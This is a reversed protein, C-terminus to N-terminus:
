EFPLSSPCRQQDRKGSAAEAFFHVLRTIVYYATIFIKKKKKKSCSCTLIITELVHKQHSLLTQPLTQTKEMVFAQIWLYKEGRSSDDSNLAASHPEVQVTSANVPNQPHFLGATGDAM